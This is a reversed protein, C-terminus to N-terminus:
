SVIIQGAAEIGVSHWTRDPPFRYCFSTKSVSGGSLSRRVPLHLSFGHTAHFLHGGDMHPRQPAAGPEAVVAGNFNHCMDRGLLRACLAAPFSSLLFDSIGLASLHHRLFHDVLFRSLERRQGGEHGKYGNAGVM